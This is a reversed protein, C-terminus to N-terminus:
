RKVKPVLVYNWEGHFSDRKIRLSARWADSVERGKEYVHIDLHAYVKLSTTTRSTWRLASEPDGRMNADIRRDLAETLGEPHVEAIKRGAGKARVRGANSLMEARGSELDALGRLITPKAIGTACGLEAAVLFPHPHLKTAASSPQAQILRVVANPIFASSDTFPHQLIPITV